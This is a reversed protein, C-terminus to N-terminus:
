DPIISELPKQFTPLDGVFCGRHDEYLTFLIVDSTKRLLFHYKKSPLILGEGDRFSGKGCLGKIDRDCLKRDSVVM